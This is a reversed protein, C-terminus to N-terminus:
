SLQQYPVTAAKGSVVPRKAQSLSEGLQKLKQPATEILATLHALTQARGQARFTEEGQANRLAEDAQVLMARLLQQLYRGDPSRALRALNTLDETTLRQTM